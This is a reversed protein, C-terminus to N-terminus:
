LWQEIVADDVGYDTAQAAALLGGHEDDVATAFQAAGLDVLVRLMPAKVPQGFILLAALLAAAAVLAGQAVAPAVPALQLFRLPLVGLHLREVGQM